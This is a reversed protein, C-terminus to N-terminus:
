KYEKGNDTLLKEIRYPCENFFQILAKASSIQSKDEMIVAYGEATYHDIGV